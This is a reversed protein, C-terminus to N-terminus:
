ESDPLKSFLEVAQASADRYAVLWKEVGEDKLDHIMKWGIDSLPVSIRGSRLSEDAYTFISRLCWEQANLSSIGASAIRDNYQALMRNIVSHSSVTPEVVDPVQWNLQYYQFTNNTMESVYLNETILDSAKLEAIARDISPHINTDTFAVMEPYSVALDPRNIITDLVTEKIVAAPDPREGADDQKYRIGENMHHNYIIEHHLCDSSVRVKRM